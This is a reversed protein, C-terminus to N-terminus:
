GADEGAGAGAHANCGNPCQWYNAPLKGGAQLMPKWREGCTTCQLLPQEANVLTVGVRQLEPASFRRPRHLKSQNTQQTTDTQENM